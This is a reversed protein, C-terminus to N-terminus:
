VQLNLVVIYSLYGLSLFRETEIKFRYVIETHKNM